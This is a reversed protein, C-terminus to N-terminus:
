DMAGPSVTMRSEPEVVISIARWRGSFRSM